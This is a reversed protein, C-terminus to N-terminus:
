ANRVEANSQPVHDAKHGPWKVDSFFAGPVPIPPDTSGQTPRCATASLFIRSKSSISVQSDSINNTAFRCQGSEPHRLIYPM